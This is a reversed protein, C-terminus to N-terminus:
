ENMQCMVTPFFFFFAREHGRPAQLLEASPCHSREPDAEAPISIVPDSCAVMIWWQQHHQHNFGVTIDYQKKYGRTIVVYGHNKSPRSISPKGNKCITSREMAINFLWITYGMFMEHFIVM